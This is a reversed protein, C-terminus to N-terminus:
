KAVYILKGRGQIEGDFFDGEYISGNSFNYVGFGYM